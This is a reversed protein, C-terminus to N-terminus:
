VREVHKTESVRTVANEPKLHLAEL